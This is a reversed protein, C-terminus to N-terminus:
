LLCFEDRCLGGGDSGYMGNAAAHDIDAEWVADRGDEVDESRAATSDVMVDSNSSM